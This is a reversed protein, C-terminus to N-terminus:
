DVLAFEVQKLDVSSTGVYVIFDGTEVTRKLDAGIFSLMDETIDFDIRKKKGPSLTVSSFSKLLKIPRTVSAVKDRIYLQVVERGKQKGTNKVTVSATIKGDRKMNTDSLSIDSYEYNTYSLGYGFPYLPSSQVDRFTATYRNNDPGADFSHSSKKYSYFIPVQGQHYPFTVPLKGSPNHEGSLLEALAEGGTSGPMWAQLLATSHTAIDTLVYPRGSVIVSIVPKGVQAIRQALEEQLGPLHLSATGGGEGSMWHQEGLALIVLDAKKAVEVAEAILEGGSAKFKDITVGPAYSFDIKNGYFKTLGDYISIVDKEEGQAAWWGLLDVKSKALPGIIAISKVDKKIPLINDNNKLLVMSKRAIDKTSRWNRKSLLEKKERKEDLYLYPSDLLGVRQKLRLVQRVANDILAESVTGERVLAPLENLYLSSVMDIDFGSNIAMQVAQKDDAAVGAKILNPITEWDTMLLGDFGLENRLIDKMLHQNATAPIGDYATYAGMVSSVGADIAAQFPPLHLERLERESFDQISYDRGALAAGYGAFHKACALLNQHPHKNSQQFGLVRAKAIEASLFPDEGSTELIRGWRPERTVDVMPAYTLHIGAAAAERAAVAASARIASLDWSAAEALPIPAITKYGHIIDEQFLIPLGSPSQEVALKQLPHINAVGNVKIISGVKGERILALQQESPEGEIAILNMQGIKEELSLSELIREIDSNTEAEASAFSPLLASSLAAFALSVLLANSIKALLLSPLSKKV